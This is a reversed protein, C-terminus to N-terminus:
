IVGIFSQFVENGLFRGQHTLRLSDRDQELLKREKMEEISDKFLDLPDVQYKQRFHSISVGETKRLGLFMEEEMMENKLVTHEHMTPKVGKEIPEMYKSVVGINSYRVGDIYGHAGAGFGFYEANDWYVLNHRSEFGSKAFNSIEYQALGHEAMKKMLLEYMQAETEEGPLPLKGKRMLNYFVTKPEVILSYGSYHPLGLALAKDITEEFDKLTQTPLSYILDISINEFGATRADQISRYVDESRHNRGIKHLLEDNFSQVGFSLRNVGYKRLVDIKDKSLDGPNAEFTYEMTDSFPLYEAIGSCLQELQQADLATPTGGGVFISTFPKQVATVRQKIEQILKEIYLDVPQNKMFVKNFDCYHCIHHCFPIHIYAATTM